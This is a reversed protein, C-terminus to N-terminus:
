AAERLVVYGNPSSLGVARAIRAINWGAAKHQFIAM